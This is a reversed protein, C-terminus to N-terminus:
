QKCYGTKSLSIARAPNKMVVVGVARGQPDLVPGGSMGSIAEGALVNFGRWVAKIALWPTFINYTGAYGPFGRAAYVVGPVFGACSPQLISPSAPGIFTAYDRKPDGSTLEVQQGAVTCATAGDVVHNATVYGTESVKFASGSSSGAPKQCLVLVIAAPDHQYDGQLEMDLPPGPAATLLAALAVYIKM